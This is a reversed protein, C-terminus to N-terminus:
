FSSHFSPDWIFLNIIALLAPSIRSSAATIDAQPVLL